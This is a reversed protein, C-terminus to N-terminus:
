QGASRHRQKQMHLSCSKEHRQEIYCFCIKSMVDVRIQLNIYNMAIKLHFLNYKIDYKQEFKLYQYM